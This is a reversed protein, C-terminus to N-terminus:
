YTCKKSEIHTKIQTPPVGFKKKFMKSFNFLDNYGVCLAAESPKYDHLTILEAAKTLRFDVLYAQPSQGVQKKFLNSFYSRELGLKQALGDITIPKMYNAMIYNKAKDIYSKSSDKNQTHVLTLQVLLEYLKSCVYFERGADITECNKIDRFIHELHPASLVDDQLYFHAPLHMEFGIWCYHWPKKLDAQYYTIEFPHIIFLEGSSVQYTGRPSKFTGTGSLVYHILYYPRTAPGYAHGTQCTEEGCILPKLDNFPYDRLLIENLM